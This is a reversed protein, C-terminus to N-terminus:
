KLTLPTIVPVLAVPTNWVFLKATVTGSTPLAASTISTGAADGAEITNGSKDAPVVDYLAGDVYVAMLYYKDNVSEQTNNLFAVNGILTNNSIACSKTYEETLKKGYVEVENIYINKCESTRVVKVYQAVVSPLTVKHQYPSSSSVTTLGTAKVWSGEEGTLSYHIEWNNQSTTNIFNIESIVVPAVLEIQLYRGSELTNSASQWGNQKNGDIANIAPLASNTQYGTADAGNSYLAWNYPVYQVTYKKTESQHIVTIETTYSNSANATQTIEASVDSMYPEYILDPLNEFDEVQLKYSLVNMDFDTTFKGGDATLSKLYPLNTVEGYVAVDYVLVQKINTGKRIVKVYKALVANNLSAELVYPSSGSTKSLGTVQTWSDDEGSMSYFVAWNDTSGTIGVTLKIKNIMATKGLDIKLSVDSLSSSSSYAQWSTNSEGDIANEAVNSSYVSSAEATAGKSSLALNNEEGEAMVISGMTMALICIATLICLLKKM